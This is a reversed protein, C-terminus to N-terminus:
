LNNKLYAEVSANLLPLQTAKAAEDWHKTAKGSFLTSYTMARGTSHKPAKPSFWSTIVGNQKIPVSPGYVVGNYLYNAYPATHTITATGKQATISVSSYLAGNRYPVYQRYLKHWESAAYTWVEPANIRGLLQATKLHAEVKM